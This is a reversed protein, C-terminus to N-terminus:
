GSGPDFEENNNKLLILSGVVLQSQRLITELESQIMNIRATM